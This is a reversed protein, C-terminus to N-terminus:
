QLLKLFGFVLFLRKEIDDPLDLVNLYYIYPEEVYCMDKLM